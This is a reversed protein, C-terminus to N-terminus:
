KLSQFQIQENQVVYEGNGLDYMGPVYRYVRYQEGKKLIRPLKKTKNIKEWVVTDQLVTVKGIQGPRLELGKWMQKTRKSGTLANKDLMSKSPTEYRIANTREVWIDGGLGLMPSIAEYAPVTQGAKLADVKKLRNNVLEYIPVSKKASVCGIADTSLADKGCTKGDFYTQAGDMYVITFTSFKNVSFELGLEGNNKYPIVKGRLVEKTGDSHEIFIALNDLIKEREKADAPLSDKLPLIISVERSQMNTEIEMPRGLVQVKQNHAIEQIIEEKKAREEVQKQQEKSKLPVVRFYLDDNFSSISETPIAIIANDTAIVLKIKGDNLQKLASKPIEVKVESVKDNTDPIVIRATDVGQQKAKEVTDIAISESMSVHDKVTGDPETTRTIPTKTLNTGNAGDVDVVIEESNSPPVSEENNSPPAPNKTFTVTTAEGAPKNGTAKVRVLVTVNGPFAPANNSDYSTWATGNNSSYEMTSDAGIIVNREDNASVQPQEPPNFGRNIQLLYTKTSGGKATVIISVSNDGEVLPLSQSGGNEMMHGNVVTSATPDITSATIDINTVNFPVTLSYNLTQPDFSPMFDGSSVMLTKLDSSVVHITRIVEVAANGKSDSVNYRLLYTGLKSKDVSGTVTVDGSTDGDVEDSAMYGPEVYVEGKNLYVTNEGVLSIIPGKKDAVNFNVKAQDTLPDNMSNSKGNDEITYNFSASGITDPTFIIKGDRIEVQGGEPDEVSKITLKQDSENDPGQKDNILLDEFSITIPSGAEFDSLTDDEAIPSDNVETVIISAEVGDSLKTGDTGPAAQVIFGFGTTGYENPNPTFKLGAMGEAVTIFDGQSIMTTGDNKYLIGGTVGTIKYYNVPAGGADTPTIVLGNTTQQDENTVANTVIPQDAPAEITFSVKGVHTLPDPDGNTTGNDKVTYDFSAIGRFNSQPSFIINLGEIRVTGGVFNAIDTVTLTQGSENAPGASDNAILTDFPISFEPANESVSLLSDDAAEPADNVESVAITATAAESLGLGSDNLSAQAKFSFADGASSNADASPKFKLGAEGDSKTIFAGDQIPTTEDNKYLEGGIIETIKFHTVNSDEEQPAIKLGSSNVRDEETIANTVQPAKANRPNGTFTLSAEEGAPTGELPNAPIRVHVTNNGSLDPPNSSDYQTWAGGNIQYELLININIMKNNEDDAFVNPASTLRYVIITYTKTTSQDEATVTVDITNKGTILNVAHSASKNNVMVTATTDERTPIVTVSETASPVSASYTLTNKNFVTNLEGASLTLNSLNANNNKTTFTENSGYSTGASNTAYARYHYMTKSQLFALDATIIGQTCSSVSAKLAHEDDVIPNESTSYVIGCDTIESHGDSVINGSAVASESTIDTVNTDTTVIPAATDEAWKAYLTTDSNVESNFDFETTYTNDMYWGIFSNGAKTPNEPKNVKGNEIILQSDVSSGGATNFNSNYSNVINISGNKVDSMIDQIENDSFNLNEKNSKDITLASNGLVANSKVKVKVKFLETATTILSEGLTDDFWLVALRDERESINFDFIGSVSKNPIIDLVELINPDYNVKIGYGAIGTIPTNISVPINETLGKGVTVNGITVTVGPTKVDNLTTVEKMQYANKNGAADKVIVNFYYTKNPSLGAAHFSTLNKEFGSGLPVGSEIESVTNFNSNTSQYVRYELDSTVTTDDVASLWNLTVESTSINDARITGDPLNPSASDSTGTELVLQPRLSSNPFIYSAYTFINEANEENGLIALSIIKDNNTIQQKVFNTVDIEKWVGTAINSDKAIILQDTEVNLSDKQWVDTNMGYVTVYPKTQANSDGDSISTIFIKLKASKINQNIDSLDFQIASREFGWDFSKGGTHETLEDTYGYYENWVANKSAPKIIEGASAANAKVAFLGNNGVGVMMVCLCLAIIFFRKLGKM